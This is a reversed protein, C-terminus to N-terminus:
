RSVKRGGRRPPLLSFLLCSVKARLDAQSEKSTGADHPGLDLPVSANSASSKPPEPLRDSAEVTQLLRTVAEHLPSSDPSRRLAEASSGSACPLPPPPPPPTQRRHQAKQVQRFGSSKEGSPGAGPPCSVSAMLVSTAGATAANYSPSSTRLQACNPDATGAEGSAELSNTSAAGASAEAGAACPMPMTRARRAKPRVM